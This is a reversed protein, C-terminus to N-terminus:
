PYGLTIRRVRANDPVWEERRRTWNPAVLTGRLSPARVASDTSSGRTVEVLKMHRPPRVKAGQWSGAPEPQPHLGQCAALKGGNQSVSASGPFAYPVNIPPPDRSLQSALVSAVTVRPKPPDEDTSRGVCRVHAPRAHRVIIFKRGVTTTM